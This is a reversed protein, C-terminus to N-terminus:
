CVRLSGPHRWGLESYDLIYSLPVRPVRAPLYEHSPFRRVHERERVMFKRVRVMIM